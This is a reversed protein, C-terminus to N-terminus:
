KRGEDNPLSVSFTTWNIRYKVGSFLQYGESQCLQIKKQFISNKIESPPSSLKSLKAISIEVEHKQYVNIVFVIAVTLKSM